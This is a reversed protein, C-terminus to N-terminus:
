YGTKKHSVQKDQNISWSDPFPETGAKPFVQGAAGALFAEGNESVIVNKPTGFGKDFTTKENFQFGSVKKGAGFGMCSKTDATGCDPNAEPDSWEGGKCDTLGNALADADRPGVVSFGIAYYRSKTSPAPDFGIKDLCSVYVDFEAQAATEASYLSALQIKAETTKSKAQYKKFNPIAVASLIGIIAVVVMLEILTFGRRTFIKM